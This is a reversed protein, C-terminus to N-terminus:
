RATQFPISPLSLSDDEDVTVNQIQMSDGDSTIVTLVVTAGSPIGELRFAGTADTTTKLAGGVASVIAGELPTGAYMEYSGNIM